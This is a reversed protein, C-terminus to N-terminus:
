ELGKTGVGSAFDYVHGSGRKRYRFHLRRRWAGFFCRHFRRRGVFRFFRKKPDSTERIIRNSARIMLQGVEDATGARDLSLPPMNEVFTYGVMAGRFKKKSYPSDDWIVFRRLQKIKPGCNRMDMDDAQQKFKTVLSVIRNYRPHSSASKDLQLQNVANRLLTDAKNVFFDFLDMFRERRGVKKHLLIHVIDSFIQSASQEDFSICPIISKMLAILQYQLELTHDNIDHLILVLLQLASTHVGSIVEEPPNKLLLGLVRVLGPIEPGQFGHCIMADLVSTTMGVTDLRAIEVACETVVEKIESADWARDFISCPFSTFIASPCSLMVCRQFIDILQPRFAAVFDEPYLVLGDKDRLFDRFGCAVEFIVSPSMSRLLEVVVNICKAVNVVDVRSLVLFMLPIRTKLREMLVFGKLAESETFTVPNPLVTFLPAYQSPVCECLKTCIREFTSPLVFEGNVSFVTEFISVIGGFEDGSPQWVYEALSCYLLDADADESMITAIAPAWEHIEKAYELYCNASFSECLPKLVIHKFYRALNRFVFDAIENTREVPFKQSFLVIVFHTLIAGMLENLEPQWNGFFSEIADPEAVYAFFIGILKAIFPRLVVNERDGAEHFPYLGIIENQVSPQLSSWFAEIVVTLSQFAFVRVRIDSEPSALKRYVAPDFGAVTQFELCKETANTRIELDPNTLNSLAQILEEANM